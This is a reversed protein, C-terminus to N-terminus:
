AKGDRKGTRAPKKSSKGEMTKIDKLLKDVGAAEVGNDRTVQIRIPTDTTITVRVKEV